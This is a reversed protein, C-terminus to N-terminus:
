RAYSLGFKASEGVFSYTIKKPVACFGDSPIQKKVVPLIM